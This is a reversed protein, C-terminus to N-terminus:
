QVLEVGLIQNSWYKWTGDEPYFVAITDLINPTFAADTLSITKLRVRAVAFEDDHGIYNFGVLETQTDLGSFQDPLLEQMTAYDPSKTHITAITDEFMKGNYARINNEIVQRLETALDDQAVAIDGLAMVLILSGFFSLMPKM